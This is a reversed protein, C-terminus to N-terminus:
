TVFPSALVIRRGGENRASAANQADLASRSLRMLWATGQGIRRDNTGGPDVVRDQLM